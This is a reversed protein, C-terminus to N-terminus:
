EGLSSCIKMLSILSSFDRPFGLSLFRSTKRLSATSPKLPVFRVPLSALQPSERMTVQSGPSFVPATISLATRSAPQQTASSISERIFNEVPYGDQGFTNSHGSYADGSLYGYTSGGYEHHEEAGAYDPARTNLEPHSM